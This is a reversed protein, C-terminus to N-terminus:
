KEAQYTGVLRPRNVTGVITEHGSGYFQGTLGDYEWDPLTTFIGGFGIRGNKIPVFNWVDLRADEALLTVGDEEYIDYRVEAALYNAKDSNFRFEIEPNLLRNADVPQVVGDVDGTWTATVTPNSGTAAIAVQNDDLPAAPIPVGNLRYDWYKKGDEDQDEWPGWTVPNYDAWETGNQTPERLALEEASIEPMEEQVPPPAQQPKPPPDNNVIVVQVEEPPPDNVPPASQTTVTDGGLRDVKRHFNRALKKFHKKKLWGPAEDELYAVMDVYLQQVSENTKAKRIQKKCDKFSDCVAYSPAAVVMMVAAAILKLVPIGRMKSKSSM